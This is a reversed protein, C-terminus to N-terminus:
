GSQAVPTALRNCAYLAIGLLMLAGGRVWTDLSQQSPLIQCSVIALVPVWAPVRFHQETITDRRLVQVALNTSLFVFLLLPVVTESQLTRCGLVALSPTAGPISLLSPQSM